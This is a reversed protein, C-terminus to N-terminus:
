TRYGRMNRDKSYSSYVNMDTQKRHQEHMANMKSKYTAWATCNAQCGPQRKSCIVGNPKCPPRISIAKMIM